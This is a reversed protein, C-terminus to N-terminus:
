QPASMLWGDTHLARHFPFTFRTKHSIIDNVLRAAKERAAKCYTGTRSEDYICSCFFFQWIISTRLILLLTQVGNAGGLLDCSIGGSGFM